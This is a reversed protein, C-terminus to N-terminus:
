VSDLGKVSPPEKIEGHMKEFLELYKIVSQNYIDAMSCQEWFALNKIKELTPKSIMFNVQMKEEPIVKGNDNKSKAM